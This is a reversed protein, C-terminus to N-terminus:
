NWHMKMVGHHVNKCSSLYLHRTTIKKSGFTVNLFKLSVDVQEKPFDYWSLNGGILKEVDDGVIM